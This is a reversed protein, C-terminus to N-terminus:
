NLHHNEPFEELLKLLAAKMENKHRKTPVKLKNCWAICDNHSLKDVKARTLGKKPLAAPKSDLKLNSIEIAHGKAKMLQAVHAPRILGGLGISGPTSGVMQLHLFNFHDCATKAV